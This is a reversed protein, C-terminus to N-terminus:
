AGAGADVAVIQGSLYTLDKRALCSVVAAIEEPAAMRKLPIRQLDAEIVARDASQIMDTEVWSPAVANVRIGRPGLERAMVRTLTNVAAKSSAYASLGAPAHAAMTSSVNIIVGSKQPLMFRVAAQSCAFVGMVNTRMVQWFCEAPTMAFLASYSRGANNVLVDLRGYRDKLCRFLDQVQGPETVDAQVAWAAGGAGRILEM